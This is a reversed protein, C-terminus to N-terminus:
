NKIIKRVILTDDSKLVYMGSELNSLDLDVNSELGSKLVRGDM